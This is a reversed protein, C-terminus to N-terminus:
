SRAAPSLTKKVQLFRTLSSDDVLVNPWEPRLGREVREQIQVNTKGAWPESCPGNSESSIAV